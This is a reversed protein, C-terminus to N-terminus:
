LDVGEALALAVALHDPLEATDVLSLTSKKHGLGTKTIGTVWINKDKSLAEIFQANDLRYGSVLIEEIKKDSHNLHFYEM